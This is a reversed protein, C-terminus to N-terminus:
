EAQYLATVILLGLMCIQEARCTSLSFPMEVGHGATYLPVLSFSAVKSGELLESFIGSNLYNMYAM